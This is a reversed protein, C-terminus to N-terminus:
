LTKLAQSSKAYSRPPGIGTVGRARPPPLWTLNLPLSTSLNLINDLRKLPLLSAYM